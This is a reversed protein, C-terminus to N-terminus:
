RKRLDTTEFVMKWRESRRNEKIMRRKEAAKWQLWLGGCLVSTLFIVTSVLFTTM